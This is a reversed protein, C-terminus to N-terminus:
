RDYTYENNNSATTDMGDKILWHFNEGWIRSRKKAAESLYRGDANFDGLIM